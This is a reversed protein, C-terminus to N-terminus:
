FKKREAAHLGEEKKSVTWVKEGALHATEVLQSELDIRDVVMLIKYDKLNFTDRMKKILFVMTLSKDSGQTHWVM